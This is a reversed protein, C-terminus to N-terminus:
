DTTVVLLTVWKIARALVCVRVCARVFLCVVVGFYFCFICLCVFARVCARVCARVRVCVCGGVCGYAPCLPSEFWIM